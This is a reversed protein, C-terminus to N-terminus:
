SLVDKVKVDSNYLANIQSISSSPLENDFSCNSAEGNDSSEANKIDIYLESM